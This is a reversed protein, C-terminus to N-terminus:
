TSKIQLSGLVRQCAQHVKASHDRWQCNVEVETHGRFVFMLDSAVALGAQTVHYGFTRADDVVSRKPTTSSIKFGQQTLKQITTKLVASLLLDSAQDSDFPLDFVAAFILDRQDVAVGSRYKMNGVSAELTLSSTVDVFGAPLLYCYPAGAPSIVTGGTCALAQRTPPTSATTAPAATTASSAATSGAAGGDSGSGGSGTSDTSAAPLGGDAYTGAGSVTSSCGAVALVSVTVLGALLARLLFRPM